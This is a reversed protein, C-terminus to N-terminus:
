ADEKMDDSIDSTGHVVPETGGSVNGIDELNLEEKEIQEESKKKEDIM